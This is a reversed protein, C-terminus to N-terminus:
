RSYYDYTEVSLYYLDSIDIIYRKGWSSVVIEGEDTIETVYMTHPDVDMKAVDRSRKEKGEFDKCVDYLESGSATIQVKKGQKISKRIEETIEEPTLQKPSCRRKHTDDEKWKEPYIYYIQEVDCYIGYRFKLFKEFKRTRIEPTTGHAIGTEEDYYISVSGDEAEEYGINGYIDQISSSKIGWVYCYYEMILYEYNYDIEGNSKKKYMEFGFTRKFEEENDAYEDFISDVAATYGCGHLAFKYLFFEIDEETANPWYRRIIKQIKPDASLEDNKYYFDDQNGGYQSTSFVDSIRVNNNHLFVNNIINLMFNNGIDSTNSFIEGNPMIDLVKSGDGSIINVKNKESYRKSDNNPIIIKTDDDLTIIIRQNKSEVKYIQYPIINIAYSDYLIKCLQEHNTNESIKDKSSNNKLRDYAAGFVEFNSLGYLRLMSRVINTNRKNSKRKEIIANLQNWDIFRDAFNFNGLTSANIGCKSLTKSNNIRNHRSNNFKDVKEKLWKAIEDADADVSQIIKIYSKLESKYYFDNPIEINKLISKANELTNKGKGLNSASNLIKNSDFKLM